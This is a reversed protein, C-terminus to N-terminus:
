GEGNEAFSGSERAKGPRRDGPAETATAKLTEFYKKTKEKEEAYRFAELVSSFAQNKDSDAGSRAVIGIFVARIRHRPTKRRKESGGQNRHDCGASPSRYTNLHDARSSTPTSWWRARGSDTWLGPGTETATIDHGPFKFKYDWIM